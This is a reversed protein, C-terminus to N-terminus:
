EATLGLWMMYLFIAVRVVIYIIVLTALIELM